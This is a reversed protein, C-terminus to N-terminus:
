VAGFCVPPAEMVNGLESMMFYEALITNAVHEAGLGVVDGPCFVLSMKDVLEVCYCSTPGTERRGHGDGEWIDQRFRLGGPVAAASLVVVSSRRSEARLGM